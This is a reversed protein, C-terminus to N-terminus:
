LNLLTDFHNPDFRNKILLRQRILTMLEEYLSDGIIPKFKEIEHTDIGYYPNKTFKIIHEMLTIKAGTNPNLQNYIDTNLLINELSPQYFYFLIYAVLYEVATLDEMSYQSFEQINKNKLIKAVLTLVKHKISGESKKICHLIHTILILIEDGKGSFVSQSFNSKKQFTSIFLNLIQEHNSQFLFLDENTVLPLITHIDWSNKEFFKNFLKWYSDEYFVLGKVLRKLVIEDRIFSDNYLKHAVIKEIFFKKDFNTQPIESISALIDTLRKNEKGDDSHMQEYESVLFKFLRFLSDRFVFFNYRMNPSSKLVVLLREIINLDLSHIAQKFLTNVYIIFAEENPIRSFITADYEKIISFLPSYLKPENIEVLISIIVDIFHSKMFDGIYQFDMISNYNGILFEIKHLILDRNQNYVGGNIVIIKYIAETLELTDNFYKEQLAKNKTNKLDIESYLDEIKIMDDDQDIKSIIKKLTSTNTLENKYIDKIERRYVLLAQDSFKNLDYFLGSLMNRTWTEKDCLRNYKEVLEDNGLEKNFFKEDLYNIENETLVITGKLTVLLMIFSELLSDEDYLIGIEILGSLFYISEFAFTEKEIERTTNIIETNLHIVFSRQLEYPLKYIIKNVLEDVTNSWLDDFYSQKYFSILSIIDKTRIMDTLMTSNCEALLMYYAYGYFEHNNESYLKYINDLVDELLISSDFDKYRYQNSNESLMGVIM